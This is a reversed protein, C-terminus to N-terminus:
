LEGAWDTAGGGFGILMANGDPRIRRVILSTPQLQYASPLRTEGYDLLHEFIPTHMEQVDVYTSFM